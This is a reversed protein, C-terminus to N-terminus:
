GLMRRFRRYLGTERLGTGARWLRGYVANRQRFAQLDHEIAEEGYVSVASEFLSKAFQYLTLDPEALQHIAQLVEPEIREQRPRASNVNRMAYYVNKWGFAKQLLLLTKDFEEVLGVVRCHNQLHEQAVELANSPLPHDDNYLSGDEQFGYIWRTQREGRTEKRAFELLTMEHYHAYRPHKPNLFISYYTSIIREVPDRLLTIYAADDSWFRHVGYHVHGLICQFEDRESQSMALFQRMEERHHETFMFTKQDIYQRAIVQRLTTGATKPIHLYILKTLQDGQNKRKM